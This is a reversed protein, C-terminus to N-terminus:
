GPLLEPCVLWRLQAAGRDGGDPLTVCALAGKRMKFADARPTGLLAALAQSLDPEHGVLLLSDLGRARVTRLGALWQATPTDIRLWDAQATPLPTPWQKAAHDLTERARRYPSSLALDVHLARAQAFAGMAVAQRVGKATLARDPHDQGDVRVEAQAHRLLYLQVTHHPDILVGM